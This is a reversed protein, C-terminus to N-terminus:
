KSDTCCPAIKRRNSSLKCKVSACFFKNQKFREERKRIESHLMYTILYKHFKKKFKLLMNVKENLFLFFLNNNNLLLNGRKKEEQLRIIVSFNIHM